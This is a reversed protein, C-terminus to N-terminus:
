RKHALAIEYVIGLDSDREVEGSLQMVAPVMSFARQLKSPFLLRYGEDADASKKKDYEGKRERKARCFKEEDAHFDVM